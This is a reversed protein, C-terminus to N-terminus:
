MDVKLRDWYKQYLAMTDDGVDERFMAHKLLEAPPYVIANNALEPPMEKKAAENPSGYGIEESLM